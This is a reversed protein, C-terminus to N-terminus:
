SYTWQSLLNSDKSGGGTFSSTSKTGDIFTRVLSNGASSGNGPGGVTGGTGNVLNFYDCPGYTCTLSSTAANGDLQFLSAPPTQGMAICSGLITGLALGGFSWRFNM